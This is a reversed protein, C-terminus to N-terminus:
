NEYCIREIVGNNDPKENKDTFVVHRNKTKEVSELYEKKSIKDGFYANKCYDDIKKYFSLKGDKTVRKTITITEMITLTKHSQYFCLYITLKYTCFKTVTIKIKKVFYVVAVLNQM